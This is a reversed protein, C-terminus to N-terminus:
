RLKGGAKRWKAVAVDLTAMDSYPEEHLELTLDIAEKEKKDPAYHSRWFTHAARVVEKELERISPKKPKM